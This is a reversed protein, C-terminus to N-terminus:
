KGFQDQVRLWKLKFVDSEWFKTLAGKSNNDSSGLDEAELREEAEPEKM